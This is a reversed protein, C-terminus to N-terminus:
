GSIKVHYGSHNRVNLAKGNEFLLYQGKIGTLKLKFAPVSDLRISSVSKPYQLVPYNFTNEKADEKVFEMLKPSLLEALMAKESELSIDNDVDNRLMKRWDTKDSIFQKLEVEIQGALQRYPTEALVITRVAGQDIWRTPIQTSRTVGVKIGGSVALYVVHPQNHHAEEWEVDRGKGLHAECLEPRIICDAAEPIESFCQYCYGQYTKKIQKNCNECTILGDFVFTLENGLLANMDYENHEGRLYYQVQDGNTVRMKSLKIRM